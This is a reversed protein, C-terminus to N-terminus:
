SDTIDNKFLAFGKDLTQRKANKYCILYIYDALFPKLNHKHCPIQLRNYAERGKSEDMSIIGCHEM